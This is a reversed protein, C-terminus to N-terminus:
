INRKCICSRSLNGISPPWFSGLCLIMGNRGPLLSNIFKFVGFASKLMRGLCAKGAKFIPTAYVTSWYNPVTQQPLALVKPQSSYVYKSISNMAIGSQLCQIIAQSTTPPTVVAQSYLSGIWLPHHIYCIRFNSLLSTQYVHWIWLGAM